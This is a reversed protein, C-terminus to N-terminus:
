AIGAVALKQLLRTKGIQNNWYNAGKILIPPILPTSYVQFITENMKLLIEPKAVGRAFVNFVENKVLMHCLIGLYPLLNGTTAEMGAINTWSGLALGGYISLRPDTGM